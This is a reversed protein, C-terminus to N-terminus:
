CITTGLSKGRPPGPGIRWGDGEEEEGAREQSSSPQSSGEKWRKLAHTIGYLLPARGGRATERQETLGLKFPLVYMHHM